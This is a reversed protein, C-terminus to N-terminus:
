LYYVFQRLLVRWVDGDSIVIYTGVVSHWMSWPIHLRVIAVHQESSYGPPYASLVRDYFERSESAGRVTVDPAVFAFEGSTAKARHALHLASEAAARIQDSTLTEWPGKEHRYLIDAVSVEGREPERAFVLPEPLSFPGRVPSDEGRYSLLDTMVASLVRNDRENVVSDRPPLRETACSVGSM